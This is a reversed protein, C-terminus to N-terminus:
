KEEQYGLAQRYEAVVVPDSVRTYRQTSDPSAHGLRRQLTLERMGGEWLRTAHTHRLAHPTMWPERIGIRECHRAFLKVLAHYSLPENRRKGQGGVLFVLTEAPAQPRERMVYASLTTLTEPEHLDVVRERRSKTRVGKPHDTRYRITVRRRGYQIDELHLNLVEGPRLGGQLMLLLMAKDRLCTLSSLLQQVQEDNMPRPLREVTKVRVIRRIPRQRSAQGMFPRHRESVRALAPDDRKQIPNERVAFQETVILYEYLSSIAALIRNVTPASLCTTPQGQETTCSVLSTRQAQRRVPQARLYAVFSPAHAPGFSAYTLGEQALFRSFHLLDYAYASITHPSYDRTDLYRLFGSVEPVPREANDLLDFETRGTPQRSRQVHM